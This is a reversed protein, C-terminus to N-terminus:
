VYLCVYSYCIVVIVKNEQTVSVTTLNTVIVENTNPGALKVEHKTNSDKEELLDRISENYIELFQAKFDYQM